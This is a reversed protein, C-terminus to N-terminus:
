IITTLSKVLLSSLGLFAVMFLVLVLISSLIWPFHLKTNLKKIIPLLIFALMVSIVVPLFVSSLTKLLFGTVIIAFFFLIYFIKNNGSTRFPKGEM